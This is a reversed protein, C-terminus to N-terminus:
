DTSEGKRWPTCCHSCAKPRGKRSVRIIIINKKKMKGTEGTFRQM